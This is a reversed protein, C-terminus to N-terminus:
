PKSVGEKEKWHICGFDPGTTIAAGGVGQAAAEVDQEPRLSNGDGLLYCYRKPAYGDHRVHDRQAVTKPDWYACTKCTNM